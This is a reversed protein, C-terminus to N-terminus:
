RWRQEYQERSFYNIAMKIRAQEQETESKFSILVKRKHRNITLQHSTYINDEKLQARNKRYDYRYYIPGKIKHHFNPHYKQKWKLKMNKKRQKESKSLKRTTTTEEQAQQQGQVNFESMEEETAEITLYNQEDFKPLLIQPQKDFRPMLIEPEEDESIDSLDDINLTINTSAATPTEYSTQISSNSPYIM